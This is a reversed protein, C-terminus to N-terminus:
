ESSPAGGPCDTATRSTSGLWCTRSRCAASSAASSAATRGNVPDPPVSAANTVSGPWCILGLVLSQTSVKSGFWIPSVVGRVEGDPEGGDGVESGQLGFGEVFEVHV